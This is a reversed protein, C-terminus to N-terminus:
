NCRSESYAFDSSLKWVVTSGILFGILAGVKGIKNMLGAVLGGFALTIVFIENSGTVISTVLGTIFGSACGLLAGKRYGYILVLM